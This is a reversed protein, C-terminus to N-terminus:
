TNQLEHGHLNAYLCQRKFSSAEEGDETDLVESM